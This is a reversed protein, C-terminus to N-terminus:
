EFSFRVRAVAFAELPVAVKASTASVRTLPLIEEVLLSAAVQADIQAQTPYLPGGQALWAANANAHTSDILELTAAPPLVCNPPLNAFTLEVVTANPPTGFYDYNTLLATVAGVPAGSADVGVVVDVAGASASGVRPAAAGAAAGPFAVPVAARPLAALMQMARYVPKKVGYITQIGFGNHFPQSDVGGEEFIDSVSWYSLAELNAVGQLALANHLVFAASHATDGNVETPLGLGANFRFPPLSTAAANSTIQPTPM